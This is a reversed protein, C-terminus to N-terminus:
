SCTGTGSNVSCTGTGTNRVESTLGGSVSDLDDDNLTEIEVKPDQQDSM